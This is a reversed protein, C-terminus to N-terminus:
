AVRRVTSSCAGQIDSSRQCSRYGALACVHLVRLQVRRRQEGDGPWRHRAGEVQDIALWGGTTDPTPQGPSDTAARAAPRQSM